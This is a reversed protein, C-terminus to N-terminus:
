NDDQLEELIGRFNEAWLLIDKMVQIRGQCRWIEDIENASELKERAGDLWDAFTASMDDYVHSALFRDFENLSSKYDV